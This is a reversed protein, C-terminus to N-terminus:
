IPLGRVHRRRRHKSRRDSCTGCGAVYRPADSIAQALEVGCGACRPDADWDIAARRARDITRRLTEREGFSLPSV